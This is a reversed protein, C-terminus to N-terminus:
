AKGDNYRKCFEEDSIETKEYKHGDHIHWGSKGRPELTHMYGVEICNPIIVKKVFPKNEWDRKIFSAGLVGNIYWPQNGFASFQSTIIELLEKIAKYALDHDKRDTEPNFHLTKNRIDKLKRFAGIAKPLLVDWAALTNIAVDWNDFSDKKYINKYEPSKKFDERLLIMLHNLIREGLACTGTLAPYFAGITYSRRIQRFFRNHFAVISLPSPGIETFYKIKAALNESGFEQQISRKIAIQNTKWQQQIHLEWAPNIELKLIEARTDFDNALVRFRRM